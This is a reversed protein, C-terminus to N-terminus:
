LLEGILSEYYRLYQNKSSIENNIVNIITQYKISKDINKMLLVKLSSMANREQAHVMTRMTIYEELTWLSKENEPLANYECFRIIALSDANDKWRNQLDIWYKDNAKDLNEFFKDM